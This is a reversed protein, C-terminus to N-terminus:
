ARKMGPMFAPTKAVWTINKKAAEMKSPDGMATLYLVASYLIAFFALGGLLVPILNLIYSMMAFVVSSGSTGPFAKATPDLLKLEDSAAAYTRDAFIDVINM